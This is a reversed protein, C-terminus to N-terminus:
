AEEKKPTADRSRPQAFECTVPPPPGRHSSIQWVAFNTQVV